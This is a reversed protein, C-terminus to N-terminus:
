AVKDDSFSLGIMTYKDYVLRLRGYAAMHHEM